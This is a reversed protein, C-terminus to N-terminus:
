FVRYFAGIRKVQDLGAIRQKARQLGAEPAPHTTFVLEATDEEVSDKQIM